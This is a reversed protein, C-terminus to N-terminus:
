SPDRFLSIFHFQLGNLVEPFTAAGNLGQCNIACWTVERRGNSFQSSHESLDQLSRLAGLDTRPRGLVSESPDSAILLKLPRSFSDQVFSTDSPPPRIFPRTFQILEENCSCYNRV